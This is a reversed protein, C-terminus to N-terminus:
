INAARPILKSGVIEHDKLVSVTGELLIHLEKMSELADAQPNKGRAHAYQNRLGVLAEAAKKAEDSLLQAKNLFRVIASVNVREFQDFAEDAPRKAAGDTSVLISGRLLDKILKEGVIGCMAVCSYFYGMTFLERAEVLLRVYEDDARKLMVPPLEWVRDVAAPLGLDFKDELSQRFQERTQINKPETSRVDVYANALSENPAGRLLADVQEKSIPGPSSGAGRREDSMRRQGSM